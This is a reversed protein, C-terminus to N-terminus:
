SFWQNFMDTLIPVFMPLLRLYVENPLDDLGPSKNLGVQELMDRVESETSKGECRAAEADRQRPFDALYCRFKRVSFDPVRAFLDCFHM